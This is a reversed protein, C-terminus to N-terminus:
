GGDEQNIVSEEFIILKIRKVCLRHLWASCTKKRCRFICSNIREKRLKHENSIRSSVARIEADAVGLERLGSRTRYDSSLETCLRGAGLAQHEGKPRLIGGGVMRSKRYTHVGRSGDLTKDVDRASRVQAPIIIYLERSRPEMRCRLLHPRIMTSLLISLSLDAFDNTM